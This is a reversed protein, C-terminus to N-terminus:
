EANNEPDSKRGNGGTGDAEWVIHEFINGRFGPEYIIQDFRGKAGCCCELPQYGMPSHVHKVPFKVETGSAFPGVGFYPNRIM